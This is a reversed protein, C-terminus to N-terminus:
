PKNKGFITNWIAKVQDPHNQCWGIAYGLLVLLAIEIM